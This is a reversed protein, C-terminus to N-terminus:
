KTHNEAFAKFQNMWKKSQKKFMSPFLKAIVKPAFGNFKTYEVESIYLTKNEDIKEFRSSQTNTMHIHEYEAKKEKPLNNTIITEILVMKRNGDNLSIKSKTGVKGAVGEINEISQFGDQWQNFYAENSWLAVVRDIPLNIEISCTYKM